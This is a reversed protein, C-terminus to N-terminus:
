AIWSGCAQIINFHNGEQCTDSFLSKDTLYSASNMGAKSNHLDHDRIIEVLCARRQVSTPHIILYCFYPLHSFLM